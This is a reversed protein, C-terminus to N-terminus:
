KKSLYFLNSLAPAFRSFCDPPSSKTGTHTGDRPFPIPCIEGEEFIFADWLITLLAGSLVERMSTDDYESYHFQSVVSAQRTEGTRYYHRIDNIIRDANIQGGEYSLSDIGLASRDASIRVNSTDGFDIRLGLPGDYMSWEYDDPNYMEEQQKKWKIFDRITQEQERTLPTNKSLQMMADHNFELSGPDFRIGGKDVFDDLHKNSEANYGHNVGLEVDVGYAIGIVRHDYAREGRHNDDTLRLLEGNPLFFGAEAFDETTGFRKIARNVTEAYAQDHISFKNKVSDASQSIIVGIDATIQGAETGKITSAPSNSVNEIATVKHVWFKNKQPSKKIDLRLTIHKRELECEYNIYAFKKNKGDGYQNPANDTVLTGERIIEPLMRITALKIIKKQIGLRAYNQLDFTEDIGSKNTEIVMGSERNVDFRNRTKSNEFFGEDLLTSLVQRQVHVFDGAKKIGFSDLTKNIFDESFSDGVKEVDGESYLVKGGNEVDGVVGAANAASVNAASRAFAASWKAKAEEYVDVMERLLRAEERLSEEDEFEKLISKLREAVDGIFELIKEGLTRNEAILRDIADSDKLMNESARAIIEDTAM